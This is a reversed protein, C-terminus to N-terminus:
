PRDSRAAREAEAALGHLMGQFVIGHLPLVSFWYLIGALGRPRFLATQILRSRTGGEHPEVDFRLVAEGPLRMEARLELTRDPVVDSVRWFDLVDGYRVRDPHRRGRALGPGGFLRDLLGRLKWLTTSSYWGRTGGVGCATRFVIGPAANVDITRRDKLVEGGAWDPDGP